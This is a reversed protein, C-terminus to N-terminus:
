KAHRYIDKILDNINDRHELKISKLDLVKSRFNCINPIRIYIKKLLEINELINFKSDDAVVKKNDIVIVRDSVSLLFDTNKETIIIIKGARKEDKLLKLLTQIGKYDLGSTPNDLIIIKTDRLIGLIIMIKKKEGSSIELYNKTLINSDLNFLKLLEYLRDKNFKKNGYKIDELININFLQNKYDETLYFVDLQRKLSNSNEKANIIVVGSDSTIGGYILNLLETIGSGNKGIISTIEKEKFTLNINKLINKYTVDKLEIEM